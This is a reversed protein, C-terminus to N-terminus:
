GLDELTRQSPFGVVVYGIQRVERGFCGITRAVSSRTEKVINDGADRTRRDLVLDDIM